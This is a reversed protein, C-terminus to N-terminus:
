CTTASTRRSRRALLREAAPKPHLTSKIPTARPPRRVGRRHDHRAPEDAGARRQPAEAVADPEHAPRVLGAVPGRRRAHRGAPPHAPLRARRLLAGGGGGRRVGRRRLLRHEPLGALIKDKTWVKELGLALRMERLKRAPTRATAAPGSRTPPRRDAGPREQRVAPHADVRGPGRRGPRQLGAGPGPRAPRRRQARLVPQGRDRRRGTQLLPSIPPAPGVYATRPTSRRWCPRATPPSSRPRSPSCRSSWSAPSTRSTRAPRRPWSGPAPSSRCSAARGRARRRGRERGRRPRVAGHGRVRERLGPTLWPDVPYTARRAPGTEARPGARRGAALSRRVATRLRAPPVHPPDPASRDPNDM